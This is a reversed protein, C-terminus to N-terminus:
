RRLYGSMELQFFTIGTTFDESFDQSQSEAGGWGTFRLVREALDIEVTVIAMSQAKSHTSSFNAIGM